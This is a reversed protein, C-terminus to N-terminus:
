MSTNFARSSISSAPLCSASSNSLASARLRCSSSRLPPESQGRRPTTDGCRTGIARDADSFLTSRSDYGPKFSREHVRPGARPGVFRDRHFENPVYVDTLPAPLSGATPHSITRTGNAAPSLLAHDLGRESPYRTTADSSHCAFACTQKAMSSCPSLPVSLHLADLTRVTAIGRLVSRTTM